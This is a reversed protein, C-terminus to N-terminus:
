ENETDESNEESNEEDTNEETDESEETNESGESAEETDETTEEANEETAEDTSETDEANEETTEETGEADEAGEETAEDTSEADETGEETAEDTSEADEAGEESEEEEPAKFVADFKVKAWQKEDIDWDLKDEWEEFTDDYYEETLDTRKVKSFEEDFDKDKRVVFYGEKAKIVDSMEGEKLERAVKAVKEPVDMEEAAKKDDGSITYNDNDLDFGTEEVAKEMDDSAAVKEAMEKLEDDSFEKVNGDEDAAGGEFFYVYSVAAQNVDEDTLESDKKKEMADELLHTTLQERMMQELYEETAGMKQVAEESNDELFKKAVKQIEKEQKDTIKVDFEDAHKVSLYMSKLEDMIDEKVSEEMTKEEGEPTQRWYSSDYQSLYFEDYGAQTYRAFFNGYGLTITGDGKDVNVLTASPDITGSCGGLCLAASLAGAALRFRISQKYM